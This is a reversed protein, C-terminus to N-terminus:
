AIGPGRVVERVLNAEHELQVVGGAALLANGDEVAARMCPKGDDRAFGLSGKRARADCGIHSSEMQRVGRVLLDHLHGVGDARGADFVEVGPVASACMGKVQQLVLQWAVYVSEARPRSEREISIYGERWPALTKASAKGAERYRECPVKESLVGNM